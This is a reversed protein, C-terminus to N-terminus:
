SLHRKKRHGQMRAVNISMGPAETLADAIPPHEAQSVAADAESGNSLYTRRTPLSRSAGSEEIVDMIRLLLEEQIRLFEVYDSTLVYAFLELDISTAGFRVFRIRASQSEVNPHRRLMSHVNELVCRLTDVTTEYSLGITHYFWMKERATLNELVMSVLLGNPVTVLTRDLTRIRTSRLGINEITGLKDGVRCFDGMRVPADAVVMVTGFLNEITKQAAFALALGGIGLGAIATALNVGQLSLVILLAAIAVLAKASGRLLKVAAIRHQVQARQMRGIVTWAIFDLMRMFFWALAVVVLVLAVRLWIQRALLTTGYLAGSFMLCAFLLLRIPAAFHIEKLQKDEQLRTRFILTFFLTMMLAGLWSIGLLLLLLLPIAILRYLAIGWLETKQMSIPVYSMIWADEIRTNFAPLKSLTDAAFLWIPSQNRREVRDLFIELTDHGIEAVGVKERTTAVDDGPKGGPEHSLTSLNIRLGIDMVRKLTEALQQRNQSRSRSNLFESARELDQSEVARIFNVV